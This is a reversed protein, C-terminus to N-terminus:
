PEAYVDIEGYFTHDIDGDHPDITSHVHFLLFRYRGLSGNENSISCAQQPPRDLPAVVDFFNDTDIRAIREWGSEATPRAVDPPGDGAFGWVTYKQTARVHNEGRFVSEHWSYTNIKSIAVPTRLDFLFGGFAARGRFFVSESPADGSRQARGDVLRDAGGSSFAPGFKSVVLPGGVLSVNALGRSADAYDESSPSEITPFRFDPTGEGREIRVTVQPHGPEITMLEGQRLRSGNPSGAVQVLVEGSAVGVRCQGDPDAETTFVTGLDVFRATRTQITFGKSEPTSAVVQVRGLILEGELGTRADFIAPGVLTIVAGSTFDILVTGGSLELRQGAVIPDGVQHRVDAAVWKAADISGFRAVIAPPVPAREIPGGRRMQMVALSIIMIAALCVLGAVLPSGRWSAAGVVPQSVGGAEGDLRDRAPSIGPMLSALQSHITTRLLYEDCAAEDRRILSILDALLEEGITGHCAAAVADDFEASPFKM